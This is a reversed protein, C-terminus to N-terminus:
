QSAAAEIFSKSNTVPIRSTKYNNQQSSERAIQELSKQLHNLKSVNQAQKMNNSTKMSNSLKRQEGHLGEDASDKSNQQLAGVDPPTLNM